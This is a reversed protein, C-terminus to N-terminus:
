VCRSTYLLCSTVMNKLDSISFDMKEAMRASGLLTQLALKTAIRRDLGLNVGGDVLAEIFLFVYAPGSGSLATVANMKTESIRVTLGLPKFIKEIIAPDDPLAYKGAALAMMGEGILCPTNPMVRIVRQKGLIKEIYATNIGAAVSVIVQDTELYARLEQLLYNFGDPKISIVIIDSNRCLESIDAAINVAFEKEFPATKGADLDNIWVNRDKIMGNQLIGRIISSGMTGCGIFGLHFREM